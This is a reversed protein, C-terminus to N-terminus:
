LAIEANRFFYCPQDSLICVCRFFFTETFCFDVMGTHTRRMHVLEPFQNLSKYLEYSHFHRCKVSKYIANQIMHGSNSRRSGSDLFVPKQVSKYVERIFIFSTKFNM